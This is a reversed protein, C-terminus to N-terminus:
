RQLCPQNASADAARRAEANASPGGKIKATVCIENPTIKAVALYSTKQDPADPNESANVRVILATPVTKGGRREVRWEAKDGVSSFASTIVQWYNLPHKKGNPTIVTVSQRLDDDEVQLKYGAVGACRQVSSGTEEDVKITKCSSESLNTYISSPAAPILSLVLSSIIVLMKVPM